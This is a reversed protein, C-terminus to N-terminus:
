GGTGLRSSEGVHLIPGSGRPLSQRVAALVSAGPVLLDTSINDGFKWVRAWSVVLSPGKDSVSM